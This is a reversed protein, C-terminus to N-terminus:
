GIIRHYLPLVYQNWTLMGVGSWLTVWVFVSLFTGPIIYLLNNKWNNERRLLITVVPPGILISGIWFTTRRSKTMLKKLRKFIRWAPIPKQGADKFEHLGMIDWGFKRETIGHFFILAVSLFFLFFYMYALALFYPFMNSVAFCIGDYWHAGLFYAPWM